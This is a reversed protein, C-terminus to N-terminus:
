LGGLCETECGIGDSAAPPTTEERGPAEVGDATGEDEDAWQLLLRVCRALAQRAQPTDLTLTATM